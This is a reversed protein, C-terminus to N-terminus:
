WAGELQLRGGSSAYRAAVRLANQQKGDPGPALVFLTVGTALLTGGLAYSVTAANSLANQNASSPTCQAAGNACSKPESANHSMASLVAGAGLGALGVSGTVVGATRYGNGRARARAPRGSASPSLTPVTVRFQQGEGRSADIDTSWSDYGEASASVRQVGADVPIPAGWSQPPITNEGLRVSLGPVRSTM